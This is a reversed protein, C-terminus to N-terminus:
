KNQLKLQQLKRNKIEREDDDDGAEVKSLNRWSRQETKNAKANPKNTATM